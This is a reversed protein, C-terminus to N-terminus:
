ENEKLWKVYNQLGSELTIKASFGYAQIKSVDARWNVPDGIKVQGNFIIEKKPNYLEKFHSAAVEITTEIGSSVNIVEGKFEANKILLDFVTLLDEIYIFDRSEKGTGFLTVPGNEKFKSYLDWFLQKRLREGYVSFVRMSLTPIQYQTSFEKCLIESMYKHWGYPSLPSVPHNEKVPLESPNGYVAASSIHIFKCSPKNGKIAYLLKSVDLTNLLFDTAPESISLSVNGSGGAYICVDPEVAAIIKDYDPNNRDVRYFAPDDTIAKDDCKYLKWSKEFYRCLHSGIFGHSGIILISKNM